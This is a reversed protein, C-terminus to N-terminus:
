FCYEAKVYVSSFDKLKGYTGDKQPGPLFVYTGASMKLQDSVSYKADFTLASDFANFGILGSFSLELTDQLLTKSVSVTAGHNFIEERELNDSKNLLVDCYYQATITWSSPMWDIGMLAMLQHQKIGTEGGTLISKASAQLTRDPFYAAELRLVTAGIPFAADVGVMALRSYEGDIKIADPIPPTNMMQIYNLIPTKEWGYFGYVSLDCLSFYGNFRIGYEGNEISVKPSNLTGIKIPIDGVGPFNITSPIMVNRLPSGEELPLSTGRFFPIWLVDINFSNGNFSLRAGTVSISSDDKFVSTSDEPFVSDTIKIGDAKGWVIKQNGIRFGWNASSYDIYAESLNFTFKNVTADYSISGDVFVTGNGSYVELTGAADVNGASLTGANKTGPATAGWMTSVSGSFNVTQAFIAATSVLVTTLYAITKKM